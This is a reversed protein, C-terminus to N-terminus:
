TADPGWAARAMYTLFDRASRDIDGQAFMARGLRDRAAAFSEESRSGVVSSVRGGADIVCTLGMPCPGVLIAGFRDLYADSPLAELGARVEANSMALLVLLPENGDGAARRRALELRVLEMAKESTPLTMLEPRGPVHHREVELGTILTFDEDSGTLIVDPNSGTSILGSLVGYMAYVAGIGTLGLGGARCFDIVLPDGGASPLVLDGQENLRPLPTKGIM